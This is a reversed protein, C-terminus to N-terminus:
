GGGWRGLKNAKTTNIPRHAAMMVVSMQHTVSGLNSLLQFCLLDLIGLGVQDKAKICTPLLDVLWGALWQERAGCYWKDHIYM